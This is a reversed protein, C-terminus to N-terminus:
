QTQQSTRAIQHRSRNVEGPGNPSSATSPCRSRSASSVTPCVPPGGRSDCRNRCCKQQASGPRAATHGTRGAGVSTSSPEVDNKPDKRVGNGAVTSNYGAGCLAIDVEHVHDGPASQHRCDSMMGSERRWTQRDLRLWSPGRRRIRSKPKINVMERLQAHAFTTGQRHNHGDGTRAFGVGVM